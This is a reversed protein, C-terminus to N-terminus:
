LGRERAMWEKIYPSAHLVAIGHEVSANLFRVAEIDVFYVEELDLALRPAAREIEDKVQDLEEARFEGSLWIQTKRKTSIREIILM